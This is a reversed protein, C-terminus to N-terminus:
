GVKKQAKLWQMYSRNNVVYICKHAGILPHLSTSSNNFAIQIKTGGLFYETSVENTFFKFLFYSQRALIQPLSGTSDDLKTDGAAKTNVGTAFKNCPLHFIDVSTLKLWLMLFGDLVHVHLHLWLLHLLNGDKIVARLIYM